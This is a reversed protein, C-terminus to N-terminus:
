KPGVVPFRVRDAEQMLLHAAGPREDHLGGVLMLQRCPPASATSRSSNEASTVARSAAWGRISIRCSSIAPWGGESQAETMMAVPGNVVGASLAAMLASVPSSASAKKSAMAGMTRRSVCRGHVDGPHLRTVVLGTGATCARVVDVAWHVALLVLSEDVGQECGLLGRELLPFDRRRVELSAQWDLDHGFPAAFRKRNPGMFGTPSVSGRVPREGWATTCSRCSLASPVSHFM